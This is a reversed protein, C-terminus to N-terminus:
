CKIVLIAITALLGVLAVGLIVDAATLRMAHVCISAVDSQRTQVDRHM